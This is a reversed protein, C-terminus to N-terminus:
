RSTRALFREISWRTIQGCPGSLNAECGHTAWDLEVLMHDVGAGALRDALAQSQAIAVVQDRGGHVLLTPVVAGDVRRIPSASAYADSAAVLEGGLLDRLRGRHDTVSGGEWAASLDSPAALAVVGRVGAPRDAYAVMLALHGGEGRGVLTIRNPDLGLARGEDRVWRVAGLVDTRAAPHPFAPAHRYDPAVVAYGRGALYQALGPRDARTGRTWGDHVLVVVPRAEAEEPPLYLDLDLAQGQVERFQHTSVRAGSPRPAALTALQMPSGLSVSGPMDGLAEGAALPLGAALIWARLLPTLSLGGAATALVFAPTGRPDALGSLVILAALAALVHGWETAAMAVWVLPEAPVPFLAFLALAFLIVAAATRTIQLAVRMKM